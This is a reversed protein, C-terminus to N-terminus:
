LCQRIKKLFFPTTVIGLKINQFYLYFFALVAVRGLGKAKRKTTQEEKQGKSKKKDKARRKDNGFPIQTKWM